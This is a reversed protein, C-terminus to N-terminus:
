GPRAAYRFAEFPWRSELWETVAKWVVVDLEARSETVWSSIYADSDGERDPYIYLCGIVEQGDLVSYTFGQRDRFERAHKELDSLSEELEMPHPWDGWDGPTAHIHEMSSTWARYDRENHVPGLPELRFGPGEFSLPAEFDDPVFESM